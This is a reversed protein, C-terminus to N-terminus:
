SSGVVLGSRFVIFPFFHFKSLLLSTSRGRQTEVFPQLATARVGIWMGKLRGLWTGLALGRSRARFMMGLAAAYSLFYPAHDCPSCNSRPLEFIVGMSLTFTREQELEVFGERVCECFILSSMIVIRPVRELLYPYKQCTHCRYQVNDEANHRLSPRELRVHAVQNSTDRKM